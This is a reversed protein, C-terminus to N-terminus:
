ACVSRYVGAVLAAQRDIAKERSSAIGRARLCERLASDGLVRELARALDDTDRPAFLLGNVGDTVFEPIGGAASAVVPIGCAQAELVTLGFPEAESANVLVDLARLVGPVDHTPDVFRVRDGLIATLESRLRRGYAQGGMLPAGVVAMQVIDHPPRLSAVARGVLDIGKEPDLRGLIGVIPRDPRTALQARVAQERPAPFFRSVDIGPYVVDVRGRSTASATAWSNAITASALWATLDLVRRGLGPAVIDHLDIVAATRTARGALVVETNANLVHSQVVDAGVRRILQAVRRTDSAIVAVQKALVAVGPRGGDDDRLGLPGAPAYPVTASGADHWAIALESDPPCALTIRIGANALHPRLDLLQREAGWVKQSHNVVLVHIQRQV